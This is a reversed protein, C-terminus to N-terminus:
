AFLKKHGFIKIDILAAAARFSQFLNLLLTIVEHHQIHTQWICIPTLQAAQDALLADFAGNQHEGAM